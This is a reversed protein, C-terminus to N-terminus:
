SQKIGIIQQQKRKDNQEILPMEETLCQLDDQREGNSQREKEKFKGRTMRFHEVEGLTHDKIKQM